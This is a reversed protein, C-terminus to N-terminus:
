VWSFSGEYFLTYAVGGGNGGLDLNQEGGAWDWGQTKFRTKGFCSAAAAMM